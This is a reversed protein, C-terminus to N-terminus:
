KVQRDLVRKSIYHSSESYGSNVQFTKEGEKGIEGKREELPTKVGGGGKKKKIVEYSNEMFTAKVLDQCGGGYLEQTTQKHSKCHM